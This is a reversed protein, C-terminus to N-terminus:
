TQPEDDGGKKDQQTKEEEADPSCPVQDNLPVKRVEGIVFGCKYIPSDKRWGRVKYAVSGKKTDTMQSEKDIHSSHDPQLLGLSRAREYERDYARELV